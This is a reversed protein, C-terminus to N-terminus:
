EVMAPQRVVLRRLNDAWLAAPAQKEFNSFSVRYLRQGSTRIALNLIERQVVPAKQDPEDARDPGLQVETIDYLPVTTFINLPNDDVCIHLADETLVLVVHDLDEYYQQMFSSGGLHKCHSILHASLTEQARHRQRLARRYRVVHAALIGAAVLLGFWTVWSQGTLTGLGLFLGIVSVGALLTSTVAPFSPWGLVLNDSQMADRSDDRSVDM